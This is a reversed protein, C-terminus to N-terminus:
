RTRTIPGNIQACNHELLATLLIVILLDFIQIKELRFFSIVFNMTIKDGLQKESFELLLNELNGCLVFIYEM